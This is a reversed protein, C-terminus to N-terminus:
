EVIVKKTTEGKDTYIKVFYNGKNFNSTNVKLNKNNLKKQFVIQGLMNIIEIKNMNESSVVNIEDSAPNPYTLVFVDEKNVSSISVLGNPMFKIFACDSHNGNYIALIVGGDKTANITQIDYGALSGIKYIFNVHGNINFNAIHLCYFRGLDASDSSYYCLYISDPRVFSLCEKNPNGSFSPYSFSSSSFKITDILHNTKTNYIYVSFYDCDNIPKEGADSVSVCISDNIRIRHAPDLITDYIATDMISLTNKNVHYVSFPGEYELSSSWRDIELNDKNVFFDVSVGPIERAKVTYSKNNLLNGLTDFLIINCDFITDNRVRKMFLVFNTDSTMSIKIRPLVYAETMGAFEYVFKSIINSSYIQNYILYFKTGNTTTDYITNFGYLKNNLKAGAMNSYTSFSDVINLNIDTKYVMMNSDIYMGLYFTDNKEADDNGLVYNVDCTKKNCNNLLISDNFRIVNQAFSISCSIIIVLFLIIKKM